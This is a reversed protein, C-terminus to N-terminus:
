KRTRPKKPERRDTEASVDQPTLRQAETVQLERAADALQPPPAVAGAPAIPPSSEGWFDDGASLDVNQAPAGVCLGPEADASQEGEDVNAAVIAQEDHESIADAAYQDTLRAVDEVALEPDKYYEVQVRCGSIFKGNYKLADDASEQKFFHVIAESWMGCRHEIQEVENKSTCLFEGM